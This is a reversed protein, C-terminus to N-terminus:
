VKGADLIRQNTKKIWEPNETWMSEHPGIYTSLMVGWYGEEMATDVVLDFIRRGAASDEFRSNRPPYFIYGEDVVAPLGRHRAYKGWTRLHGEILSRMMSASEGYHEYMWSDYRDPDNINAFFWMLPWWIRRVRSAQVTFDSWSVTPKEGIISRLLPNDKPDPPVQNGLWTNTLEHLTGQVGLTYIHHDAVQMNDPLCFYGPFQKTFPTPGGYDATFLIDPHAQQLRTLQKEILGKQIMLDPPFESADVENHIEVFAIQTHLGRKKLEKILADHMTALREFRQALPTSFVDERLKPDALHTTSDQYEWSTAIVYVNYKKAMEFMKIVRDLADYRLGGKGFVGRLNSSYRPIWQVLDIPGRPRAQQDFAWNLAVDARICNYNREVHEAFVRDLDNYPEGPACAILWHWLWASISLKRPLHEPIRVPKAAGTSSSFSDDAMAAPLSAAAALGAAGPGIGKLFERRRMGTEAFTRYKTHDYM